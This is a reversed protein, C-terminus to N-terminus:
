FELIEQELMPKSALEMDEDLTVDLDKEIIEKLARDKHIVKFIISDKGYFNTILGKLTSSFRSYKGDLFFEIDKRFHVPINFLYMKHYPDFAFHREYQNEKLLSNEFEKYPNTGTFRYLLCIHKLDSHLFANVFYTDYKLQLKTMNVLPTLFTSTKNPLSSFIVVNKQQADVVIMKTFYPSDVIGIKISIKDGLCIRLKGEFSISKIEGGPNKEIDLFDLSSTDILLRTADLPKVPLLKDSSLEIVNKYKQDQETM